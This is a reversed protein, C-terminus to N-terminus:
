GKLSSGPIYPNNDLPNRIISNDLGGIEITINSGCIHLGFLTKIKGSILVKKALKKEM